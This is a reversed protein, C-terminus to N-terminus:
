TTGSRAPATWAASASWRRTTPTAWGCAWWGSHRTAWRGTTAGTPRRAPRSRRRFPLKLVSNRGFAPMAGRRRRPHRHPALRNPPFSSSPNPSQLNSIPSEGPRSDGIELREIELIARPAGDARRRFHWVRRHTRAPARRRRGPHPRPRLARHLHPHGGASALDRLTEVGIRALTLVAPMNYSNALAARVSVPGHWMRDYNQPRYAANSGDANEVHLHHAPRGPHQRRHAAAPRRPSSWAPDLAAAYTFPKIASGPQRQRARRQRQRQDARQFLGPQGGHEPNRRQRQRARGRRRQRRPPQARRPRRLRGRGTCTLQALRRRVAAEAQRQLDLDLSTYVRLGGTACGTWALSSCWCDQVYM